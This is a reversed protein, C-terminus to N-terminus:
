GLIEGLGLAILDPIGQVDLASASGECLARGVGHEGVQQDGFRPFTRRQQTASHFVYRRLTM